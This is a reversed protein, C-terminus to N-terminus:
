VALAKGMREEKPGVAKCRRRREEPDTSRREMSHAEHNQLRSAEELDGEKLRPLSEESKRLEENRLPPLRSIAPVNCLLSSLITLVNAIRHPSVSYAFCAMNELIQVARRWMTSKTIKNLKGASGEASKIMKEVKRQHMEEM